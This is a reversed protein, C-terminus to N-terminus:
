LKPQQFGILLMIYGPQFRESNVKLRIICSVTSKFKFNWYPSYDYKENSFLLNKETDYVSFSLQGKKVNTCAVIRYVNEGYFTTRFEVVEDQKLPAYYQQGDSIFDPPFYLSCINQLQELQPFAKITAGLLILTFVFITKKVMAFM